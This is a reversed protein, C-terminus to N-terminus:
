HSLNLQKKYKTKLESMFFPYLQKSTYMRKPKRKRPLYQGEVTLLTLEFFSNCFFVFSDFWDTCDLKKQTMKMRITKRIKMKVIIKMVKMLFADM